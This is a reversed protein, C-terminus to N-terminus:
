RAVSANEGSEAEEQARLGDFRAARFLENALESLEKVSVTRRDGRERIMDFALSYAWRMAHFYDVEGPHRGVFRKPEAEGSAPSSAAGSSDPVSALAPKWADLYNSGKKTGQDPARRYTVTVRTGVAPPKPGTYRGKWIKRSKTGAQVKLHETTLEVIEGTFAETQWEANPM